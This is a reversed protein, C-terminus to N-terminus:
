VTATLNSETPTTSSITPPSAVLGIKAAAGATLTVTANGSKSGVTGTVTGTGVKTGSTYTTSAVGNVTMATAPAVAGEGATKAFAVEVGDVVNAGGSTKV